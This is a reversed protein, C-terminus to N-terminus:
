NHSKRTIVFRSRNVFEMRVSCGGLLAKQQRVAFTFSLRNVLYRGFVAFLVSVSATFKGRCVGRMGADLKLDCYLQKEDDCKDRYNCSGGENTCVLKEVKSEGREVGTVEDEEVVGESLVL